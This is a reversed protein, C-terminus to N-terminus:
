VNFAHEKNYGQGSSSTFLHLLSKAAKVSMPTQQRQRQHFNAGIQSRIPTTDNSTEALTTSLYSTDKVITSDPDHEDAPLTTDHHLNNNAPDGHPRKSKAPTRYNGQSVVLKRRKHTRGKSARQQGKQPQGCQTQKILHKSKLDAFKLDTQSTVLKYYAFQLRVQLKKSVASYDNLQQPKEGNPSAKEALTGTFQLYNSSKASLQSQGADSNRDLPHLPRRRSTIAHLIRNTPSHMTNTDGISARTPPALVGAKKLPAIRGVKQPSRNVMMTNLRSEAFEGLPLRYGQELSM